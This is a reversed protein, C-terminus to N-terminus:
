TQALNEFLSVVTVPGVGGPVPTFLGAKSRVEDAVFDGRPYGLDIAVVGNKIMSGGILGARGTAGVVVDYKVLDSLDSGIDFREVELAREELFRCLRRGMMGLAGVVGARSFRINAEMWAYVLVRDVAKVVAPVFRSFQALGDVDKGAPILDLVKQTEEPSAGAIPLQILVGDESIEAEIIKKVEALSRCFCVRVIVGLAEGMQRKLRVYTSEVSGGDAQVILLSKGNLKGSAMLGAKIEEAVKKGDFIM